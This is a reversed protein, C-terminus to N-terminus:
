PGLLGDSDDCASQLAVLPDTYVHGLRPVVDVPALLLASPLCEVLFKQAFCVM